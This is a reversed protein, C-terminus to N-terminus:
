FVAFSRGIENISYFLRLITRPLMQVFAYEGSMAFLIIKKRALAWTYVEKQTNVLLRLPAISRHKKGEGELGRTDCPRFQRSKAEFLFFFNLRNEKM